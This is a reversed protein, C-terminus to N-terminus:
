GLQLPSKPSAASIIKLEAPHDHFYEQLYAAMIEVFCIETEFHGADFLHLGLMEAAQADHYKVDGTVLADCGSLAAQRITSAGSGTVVAVKQITEGAGKVWRLFDVHFLTKLRHIFQELSEPEELEGMRGIGQTNGPNELRILDYAVEEYPHALLMAQVVQGTINAPVITELRVEAVNELQHLKGIAPEAGEQPKFTGTGGTRFSCHSYNGIHGAGAEALADAVKQAQEEPVFVVLKFLPDIATIELPLLRQLSLKDAVWDNLGGQAIDMNTHAAFVAIDRALLRQIMRGQSQDTRINKLPSLIFPHHTIILQPRYAIAEELSKETLDLAIFITNVPTEPSGVQLGVADWDMALSPPAMRNIAAAIDKVKFVM